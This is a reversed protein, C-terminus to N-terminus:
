RPSAPKLDRLNTEIRAFILVLALSMFVGSAAAALMMQRYGEARADAVRLGELRLFKEERERAADNFERMDRVHRDWTVRHHELMGFFIGGKGTKCLQVVSPNSLSQKAFQLQSEAFPRGRQRLETELTSQRLGEVFQERTLPSAAGCSAQYPRYATLLGRGQACYGSNILLQGQCPAL